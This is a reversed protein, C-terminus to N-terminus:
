MITEKLFISPNLLYKHKLVISKTVGLIYNISELNQLAWLKM